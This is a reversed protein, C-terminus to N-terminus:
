EWALAGLAPCRRPLGPSLALWCRPRLLGEWKPRPIFGRMLSTLDRMGAPGPQAKSPGGGGGGGRAWLPEVRSVSQLCGVLGRKGRISGHMSFLGGQCTGDCQYHPLPASSLCVLAVLLATDGSVRPINGPLCDRNVDPQHYRIPVVVRFGGRAEYVFGGCCVCGRRGRARAGDAWRPRATAHVM